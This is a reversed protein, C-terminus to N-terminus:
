KKRIFIKLKSKNYEQYVVMIGLLLIVTGIVYGIYSKKLTDEVKVVQNKAVNTNVEVKIPTNVEKDVEVVSRTGYNAADVNTDGFRATYNVFYSHNSYSLTTSMTWYGKTNTDYGTANYQLADTYNYVWIPCNGGVGCKLEQLEQLTIMRAKATRTPLEYINKECIDSYCGTFANTQNFNTTGMTYTIDKVYNWGNTAEELKELATVPGDSTNNSTNWVTNVTTNERQQMTLTEGNDHLVYFIKNENDNVQYEVITGVEYTTPSIEQCKEEKTMDGTICYTSSNKDADYKYVKLIHNNNLADVKLIGFIFISFVISITFIFSIKKVM